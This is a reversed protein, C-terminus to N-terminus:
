RKIKINQAALHRLAKHMRKEIAKVSLELLAAIEKYSKKDIRHMIFVEKSAPTMTDITHELKRKFEEMEMAFQGDEFSTSSGKLSDAHKLKTKSKRFHDIRLNAAVKFLFPGAAEPSIKECNQWLKIFCDQTLDAADASSLGRSM